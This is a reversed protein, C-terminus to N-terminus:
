AVDAVRYSFRVQAAQSPMVRSVRTERELIAVGGVLEEFYRARGLIRSSGEIQRDKVQMGAALSPRGSLRMISAV